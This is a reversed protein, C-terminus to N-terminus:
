HKTKQGKLMNKFTWMHNAVCTHSIPALMTGHHDFLCAVKHSAHSGCVFELQPLKEVM